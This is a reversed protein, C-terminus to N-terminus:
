ALGLDYSEEIAYNRFLEYLAHKSLSHEGAFKALKGDEAMLFGVMKNQTTKEDLEYWELKKVYFDVLLDEFLKGAEALLSRKNLERFIDRTAEDGAAESCYEPNM